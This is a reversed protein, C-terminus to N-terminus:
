DPSKKLAEIDLRLSDIEKQYKEAKEMSENYTFQAEKLEDQKNKLETQLTEKEAAIQEWVARSESLRDESDQLQRGLDFYYLSNLVVFAIAVALVACLIIKTQNNM